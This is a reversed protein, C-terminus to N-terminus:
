RRRGRPSFHAIYSNVIHPPEETASGSIVVSINRSVGDIYFDATFTNAASWRSEDWIAEDWYGGGGMVVIEKSGHYPVDPDSYNFDPSVEITCSGTTDVEVVLKKWRKKYDPAGFNAFAPRCVFSIPGGDFSGGKEAEYVFGDDSGFLIIEKGSADEGSWTCRIVKGYDFTSFGSVEQGYMTAIIGSGDDFCLRYQNKEKVTFSSTVKTIYRNLLPEIKQSVTAMDFNGFQQVRDLRALGRDDLYIADAITQISKPIAGTNRSLLQLNFDLSSTGYLMYTRNRCFIACSNSAQVSIGTIEDSVAIEGGGDVPSFKTPEGVGSYLFSGGTFGLLLVQSPLTEIHIPADPTILSSIEVLTTGDFSFAKNVGDVGYVKNSSASGTFNAMIFEYSGGALRTPTTVAVWGSVSSKFLNCETAGVNDRFVYKVGEFAFVGRIPGEGPVAQIASRRNDKEAQIAAIETEDDSFPYGGLDSALTASPAPRGDLREYGLIRQNRGLTNVEYNFLQICEGAGLELVSSALNLGGKLIVSKVQTKAL